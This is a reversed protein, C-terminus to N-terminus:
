IHVETVPIDSRGVKNKHISGGVVAIVAGTALAVMDKTQFDIFEALGETAVAINDNGVVLSEVLEDVGTVQHDVVEIRSGAGLHGAVHGLGAHETSECVQVEGGEPAVRRLHVVDDLSVGMRGVAVMGFQQGPDDLFAFLSGGGQRGAIALVVLVTSDAQGLLGGQGDLTLSLDEGAVVAAGLGGELLDNIGVVVIQNGALIHPVHEVAGAVAARLLHELEVIDVIGVQVAESAETM